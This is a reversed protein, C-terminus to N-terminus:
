KVDQARTDARLAVANSHTRQYGQVGCGSLMSCAWAWVLQANAVTVSTAGSLGLPTMHITLWINLSCGCFGLKPNVELLKEIRSYIEDKTIGTDKTLEGVIQELDSDPLFEHLPPDLLRITMQFGDMPRFIGEFDLRQYLLLLSLATKRQEITVSMIMKRIAKLREDFSLFKTAISPKYTVAALLWSLPLFVTKSNDDMM